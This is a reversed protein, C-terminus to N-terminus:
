SVYLAQEDYGNLLLDTDDKRNEEVLIPEKEIFVEKNFVAAFDTERKKCHEFVILFDQSYVRDTIPDEKYAIFLRIQKQKFIFTRCENYREISIELGNETQKTEAKFGGLIGVKPHTGSIELVYQNNKENRIAPTIKGM